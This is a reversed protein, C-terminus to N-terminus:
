KSKGIEQTATFFVQCAVNVAGLDNGVLADIVQQPQGSLLSALESLFAQGNENPQVTMRRQHSGTMPKITITHIVQKGFEIPYDLPISVSEPGGQAKAVAPAESM